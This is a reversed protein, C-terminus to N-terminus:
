FADDLVGAGLCFLVFIGFLYLVVFVRCGGVAFELVWAIVLYDFVLLGVVLCLTLCCVM